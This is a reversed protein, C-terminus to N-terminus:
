RILISSKVYDIIQSYVIADSERFSLTILAKENGLPVHYQTVRFPSPGRPSTRRYSVSIATKGGISVITVQEEGLMRLGQKQMQAALDAMEQRFVSRLEALTAARDESLARTLDSQTLAETPIMSVRIIAGPPSPTANVALSAVHGPPRRTSSTAGMADAAAALNRRQDISLGEWHKPIEITVRNAVLVRQYNSEQANAAWGFVLLATAVAGLRWLAVVAYAM